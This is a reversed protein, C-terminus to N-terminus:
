IQCYREMEGRRGGGRGLCSKTIECISLFLNGVSIPLKVYGIKMRIGLRGEENVHVGGRLDDGGDDCNENKEVFNEIEQNSFIEIKGFWWVNARVRWIACGTRGEKEVNIDYFGRYYGKFKCCYRLSFFFICLLSSFIM